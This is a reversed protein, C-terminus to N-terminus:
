YENKVKKYPKSLIRHFVKDSNKFNIACCYLCNERMILKGRVSKEIFDVSDNKYEAETITGTTLNLEFIKQGPYPRLTAIYKNEAKVPIVVDIEPKEPKQLIPDFQKDM